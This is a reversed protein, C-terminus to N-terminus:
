ETKACKFTKVSVGDNVSVFYIGSILRNTELNLSNLGTSLSFSKKFIIKETVSYIKIDCGSKQKAYISITLHDSFLSPSVSIKESSGKENMVSGSIIVPECLALDTGSLYRARAPINQGATSNPTGINPFPEPINWFSPASTYYYSTDDLANTGPPFIASQIQVYNGHTFNATGTLVYNGQFAGTGTLDNGVFNQQDTNLTGSSMVIGYLEVRNRFFTNFPGSPGWAQDVQLNQCINGEFLNLFPYHGHLILDGSADAIPESRTPEISYNYMYANGNAGQKVMMAHRLHRFINNEIKTEGTHLALVVGYGHTSSGDYQYAHHFYCGTIELSTSVEACVHAGISHDSEIGRMRCNAAYNFYVAYNLNATTSDTRTIRFCELGANVRPNIKVIKVNLLSDYDIRLPHRIFLTDGSVSDVQVVQGISYVAWSAPNTDWSGNDEHIEAYDGAIFASSNSVTIKYSGKAYGGTVPMFTNVQGQWLNICNGSVGGLNFTLTTADAGAGKLTVSDPVNLTSGILYNGAPFYVIGSTGNLSNIASTIATYDNIIGNGAAGFNMVNAVNSTDVYFDQVGAISWDTRLSDPIVQAHVGTSFLKLIILTYITTKKMQFINTGTFIYIFLPL